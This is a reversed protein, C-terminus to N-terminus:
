HVYSNCTHIEFAPATLSICTLKRSLPWFRVAVTIATKTKELRRPRNRDHDLRKQVVIRDGPGIEEIPKPGDATDILTGALRLGACPFPLTTADMHYVTAQEETLAGIPVNGGDHTGLKDGQQLDAADTWGQGQVYCPHDPTTRIIKGGLHLLIIRKRTPFM